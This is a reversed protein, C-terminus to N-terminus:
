SSLVGRKVRQQATKVMRHLRLRSGCGGLGDVGASRRMRVRVRLVRLACGSAQGGVRDSGSKSGGNCRRM